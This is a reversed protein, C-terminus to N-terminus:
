PRERKNCFEDADRLEVQYNQEYIARQIDEWKACVDTGVPDKIVMPKEPFTLGLSRQSYLLYFTLMGKFLNM